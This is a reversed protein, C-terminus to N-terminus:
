SASYFPSLERAKSFLNLFIQMNVPSRYRNSSFISKLPQMYMLGLDVNHHRIEPSQISAPNSPRFDLLPSLPFSRRFYNKEKETQRHTTQASFLHIFIAGRQRPTFHRTLLLRYARSYWHRFFARPSPIPNRFFIHHIPASFHTSFTDRIVLLRNPKDFM